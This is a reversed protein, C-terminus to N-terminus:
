VTPGYRVVARTLGEVGLECAAALVVACVFVIPQSVAFGGVGVVMALMIFVYAM